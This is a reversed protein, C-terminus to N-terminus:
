GDCVEGDAFSGEACIAGLVRSFFESNQLAEPLPKLDLVAVKVGKASLGQVIAEGIGGSGGTVVAIEDSWRGWASVSGKARGGVRWKDLAFRSLGANAALVVDAVFLWKLARM